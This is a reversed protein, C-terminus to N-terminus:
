DSFQHLQLATVWRAFNLMGQALGVQRLEENEQEKTENDQSSEDPKRRRKEFAKRSYYFVIQDRETEETRGLDPNYIALFNLHAPIVRGPAEDTESM